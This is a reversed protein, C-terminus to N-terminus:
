LFWLALRLGISRDAADDPNYNSRFSVRCCREHASWAGGRRVRDTGSAPGTPNRQDDSSYADDYRDQCWEWVNGSMDYLGLKNAAKTGVAHIGFDPSNKGVKYANVLYWAVDDITNSGAYKCGQSKNGGRAAFEWEAETPLRFYKGTMHNLKKIFEQCDYWSVNIVPYDLNIHTDSPNNGMVAQWLAQTVETQGIWYNSLTVRHPPNDWSLADDGQEDTAGMMFTGGEVAVMTFSVGNVTITETQPQLEDASAVTPLLMAVMLAFSQIIRKM